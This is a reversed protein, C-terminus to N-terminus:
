IREANAAIGIQHGVVALQDTVEHVARRYPVVPVRDLIDVGVVRTRYVDPLSRRSPRGEGAAAGKPMFQRPAQSLSRVTRTRFPLFTMPM